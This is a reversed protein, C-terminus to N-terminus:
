VGQPPPEAEYLKLGVRGHQVAPQPLAAVARTHPPDHEVQEPLHVLPQALGQVGVVAQAVGVEHEVRQRAGVQVAQPAGGDLRQQRLIEHRRPALHLLVPRQETLGRLLKLRQTFRSTLPPLTNLPRSPEAPRKTSSSPPAISAASGPSAYACNRPRCPRCISIPGPSRGPTYRIAARSW